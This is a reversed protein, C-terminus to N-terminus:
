PDECVRRTIERSRNTPSVSLRKIQLRRAAIVLCSYDCLRQRIVVSFRSLLRTFQGKHTPKGKKTLSGCLRRKKKVQVAVRARAAM